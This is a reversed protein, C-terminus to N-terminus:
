HRTIPLYIFSATSCYEYAGIDFGSGCPRPYGRLDNFISQNSAANIAPSSQNLLYNGNASDMFLASATAVLSHLDFGLTQWQSLSIVSDGDDLTFRSMVVNYDSSFSSPAGNALNISGRYSHESILINNFLQNGTCAPDGVLVAWRGVAPMHITNHLFRNNRSCVAGDIQYISIGGAHNNYLLNNRVLSDSVGDMNIGAGGGAGNNEIINNEILGYSLIGDGGMSADGNLHLGCNANQYLHNGRVTFYDSSNNIYIGHESNNNSQNGEVLIYDTFAAFIGTSVYTVGNHHVHNNRITIHHNKATDSGRSDIGYRPAGTVELGEIIWYAVVGSGEWTEIELNSQHKNNPGPQNITVAAGPAAKLTIWANVTGSTEIRAGTYTGSFVLITDGPGVTDVAHQITAWPATQTGAHDDNGGTSVYYVQAQLIEPAALPTTSLQSPFPSSSDSAPSVNALVPATLQPLSARWLSSFFALIILVKFRPVMTIEM